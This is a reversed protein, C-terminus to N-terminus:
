QGLAKTLVSIFNPGASGAALALIVLALIKLAEFVPKLKSTENTHRYECQDKDVKNELISKLNAHEIENSSRLARIEELIEFSRRDMSRLLIALSDDKPTM